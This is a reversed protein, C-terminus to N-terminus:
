KRRQKDLFEILHTILRNKKTNRLDDQRIYANRVTKCSEYKLGNRIYIAVVIHGFGNESFLELNYNGGFSWYFNNHNPNYWILLM